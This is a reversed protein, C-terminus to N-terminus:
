QTVVQGTGATARLQDIRSRHETVFWVDLLPLLRRQDSLPLDFFSSVMTGRCSASGCTCTWVDGGHCNILYDYTIETDRPIDRLAIVLRERGLLIVVEGGAFDRLAFM